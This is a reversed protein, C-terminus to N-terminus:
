GKNAVLNLQIIIKDNIVQDKWKAETKKWAEESNSHFNVGWLTRDIDFNAKAMIKNGMMEVKAPFTVSKTTGRMTLNGEIKHTNTDMPAATVSTIEFTAEPHNAVDFFDASKLHGELKAKSDGKVDYNSLGSLDIVFRGGTLQDGTTQLEATKLPVMGKHEDGMAKSGIWMVKSASVDVPVATGTTQEVQAADNVEADNSETSGGCATLLPFSLLLAHWFSVRM